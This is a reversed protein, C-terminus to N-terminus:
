QAGVKIFGGIATGTSVYINNSSDKVLIGAAKPTTTDITVTPLYLGQSLYVGSDDWCIPGMCAAYVAGVAASVTLVTLVFKKM